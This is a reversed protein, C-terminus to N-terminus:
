KDEDEEEEEDTEETIEMEKLLSQLIHSYEGDGRNWRKQLDDILSCAFDRKDLPLNIFQNVFEFLENSETTVKIMDRVLTKANRELTRTHWSMPNSHKTYDYVFVKFTGNSLPIVMGKGKKTELTMTGDINNVWKARKYKVM